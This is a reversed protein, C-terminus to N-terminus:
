PITIGWSACDNKILSMEASSIGKLLFSSCDNLKSIANCCSRHPAGGNVIVDIVCKTSESLFSVCRIFSFKETLFADSEEGARPAAAHATASPALIEICALLLLPLKTVSGILSKAAM